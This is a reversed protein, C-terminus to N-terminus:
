GKELKLVKRAFILAPDCCQPVPRLDIFPIVHDHTYVIVTSEGELPGQGAEHALNSEVSGTCTFGAETAMMRNALM